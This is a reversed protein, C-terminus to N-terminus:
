LTGDWLGYCQNKACCTDHLWDSGNETVSFEIEMHGMSHL